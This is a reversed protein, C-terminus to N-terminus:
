NDSPRLRDLDLPMPLGIEPDCNCYGGSLIGCWDDHYIDVLALNTYSIEGRVYMGLLKRYFNHRTPDNNMACRMTIHGSGCIVM